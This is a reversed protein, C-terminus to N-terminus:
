AIEYMFTYHYGNLATNTISTSFLADETGGDGSITLVENNSTCAGALQATTSINTAVPLSINFSTTAAATADLTLYGFVKVINGV